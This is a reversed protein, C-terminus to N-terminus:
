HASSLAHIANLAYKSAFFALVPGIFAAWSFAHISGDTRGTVMKTVAAACLALGAGIIISAVFIGGIVLVAHGWLPVTIPSSSFWNYYALGALWGFIVMRSAKENVRDITM